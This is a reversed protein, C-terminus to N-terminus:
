VRLEAIGEAILVLDDHYLLERPCGSRFECTNIRSLMFEVNLTGNVLVVEQM